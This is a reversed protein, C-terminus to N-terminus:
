FPKRGLAGIFTGYLYTTEHEVRLGASALLDRLEARSYAQGVWGGASPLHRLLSAAGHRSPVGVFVRGGPKALTAMAAVASAPDPLEDISSSNWVLDMSGRQLGPKFIDARMFAAKYNAIRAQQFDELNLDAAVSLAVEPRQALLHAGFGSGCAMEAVRLDSRGRLMQEALTSILARNMARRARQYLRTGELRDLWIPEAM